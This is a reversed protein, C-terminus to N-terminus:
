WSTFSRVRMLWLCGRLSSCSVLPFASSCIDSFPRCVRLFRANKYRLTVFDPAFRPRRGFEPEGGAQASTSEAGHSLCLTYCHLGTFGTEAMLELNSAARRAEFATAAPTFPSLPFPPNILQPLLTVIYIYGSIYVLSYWM